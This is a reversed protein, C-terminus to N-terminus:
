SALEDALELREYGPVGLFALLDFKSVRYRGSINLVRIPYRGQKILEYAQNKGIGLIKSARIVSIVAPLGELESTMM